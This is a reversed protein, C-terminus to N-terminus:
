RAVFRPRPTGAAALTRATLYVLRTIKLMKPYDIRDATDNPTHYDPHEGTNFMVMPVGRAAFSIHDSRGFWDSGNTDTKYDLGLGIAANAREITSRLDPNYLTGVLNVANGVPEVGKLGPVEENRGIMDMNLVAVANALPLLPHAAYYASGLMGDEEADFVVFVVSRDPRPGSAFAEAIAIAAATGSANDDAGHFIEPGGAGVHDYHATVLVYEDRLRADSGEVMGIVNRTDVVTNESLARRLQVRVGAVDRAHAARPGAEARLAAITTASAALLADATRESIAAAPVDPSANVLMHPATMRDQGAPRMGTVASGSVPGSKKAPSPRPALSTNSRLTLIAAAGQKKAVDAKTEGVNMRGGYRVGGAPERSLLLVVKGNVDVGKFDDDGYGGFVLPADVTADPGNRGLTYDDGDVFRKEEAAGNTVITAKLFSRQRDLRQQVMPFHQFYTGRDGIPKLGAREFFSAVYNAAIRGEASLSDRGKMEDAALFSVHAKLADIRISEVGRDHSPQAHISLSLLAAFAIPRLLNRM